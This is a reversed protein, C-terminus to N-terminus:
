VAPGRRGLGTRSGPPFKRGAFGSMAEPIGAAKKRDRRKERVVFHYLHTVYSGFIPRASTEALFHAAVPSDAPLCQQRGKSKPGIM